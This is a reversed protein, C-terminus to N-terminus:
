TAGKPSRCSANQVPLPLVFTAEGVFADRDVSISGRYFIGDSVPRKSVVPLVFEIGTTVTVPRRCRLHIDRIFIEGPKRALNQDWCGYIIGLQAVWIFASPVTLHFMGDSPLFFKVPRIVGRICGPEVDVADLAFEDQRWGGM